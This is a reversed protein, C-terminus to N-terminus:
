KAVRVQAPRIIRDNVQYGARVVEIIQGDIFRPNEEHTLAEQNFPDFLDGPELAIVTVGLGEMTKLLKKRILDIGAIWSACDPDTPAHDLARELDDIVPLFIKIHEGLLQDAMAANEQDIRRRYNAFSARERQLCDLYEDARALAADLESQTEHEEQLFEKKEENETTKKDEETM